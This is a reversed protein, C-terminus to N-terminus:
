SDTSSKMLCVINWSAIICKKVVAVVCLICDIPLKVEPRIYSPMYALKVNLVGLLSYQRKAIL